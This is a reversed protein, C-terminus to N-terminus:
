HRLSLGELFSPFGSNVNDRGVPVIRRLSLGELYSPFHPLRFQMATQLISAEIFARGLLFPFVMEAAEVEDSGFAEIFARGLLFPFEM